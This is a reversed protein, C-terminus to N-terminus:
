SAARYCYVAQGGSKPKVKERTLHGWVVLRSLPTSVLKRHTVDGQEALIGVVDALTCGPEDRVIALIRSRRSPTSVTGGCDGV